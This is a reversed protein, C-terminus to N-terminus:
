RAAEEALRTLEAVVLNRMLTVKYGNEPLPRAAALEADAAAAFATEDAPGGTLARE